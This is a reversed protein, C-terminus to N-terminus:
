WDPRNEGPTMRTPQGRKVRFVLARLAVSRIRRSERKIIGCRVRRM